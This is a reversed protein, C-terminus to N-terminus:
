APLPLTSGRAASALGQQCCAGPARCGVGASCTATSTSYKGRPWLSPPCTTCYSCCCHVPRRTPPPPCSQWCSCCAACCATRRPLLFGTLPLLFGGPGAGCPGGGIAAAAAPRCREV